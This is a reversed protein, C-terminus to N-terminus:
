GALHRSQRPWKIGMENAHARCNMARIWHEEGPFRLWIFRWANRGKAHRNVFLSPTLSEGDDSLIHDGVVKAFETTHQYTTRLNTGEPLFINKWQFGRRAPGESRLVQRESEIALWRQLLEAVFTDADIGPKAMM